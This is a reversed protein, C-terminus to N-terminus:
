TLPNTVNDGSPNCAPSRDAAIKMWTDRAAAAIFLSGAALVVTGNGGAQAADAQALATRLAQEVPSVSQALCGLGEALAALQDPAAARPHVSQTAIVRNVRPRLEALMGEVDKDESVGFVLIVSRGPLYEDLTQRLRRASDRNHASDVIVLPERSLVEFRGPWCVRAFGTQIAWDPISLGQERAVLLAAAATAGNEVQHPGLLPIRLDLAAQPDGANWVRFSQGELSHEGAEFRVDKGVEVLRSGRQSAIEEIVARAQAQQPALIVPRGPKIIGGKEFAIKELTSGLVATHDLSLSTIVSVLPDVVNTADLRGGLGVEVVAADVQTSSFHLFGLATTLEFTTLREVQPVVPKIRDVLAVLEAPPIQKGNVQIRETFEQLHPSTYLGTRYGAEQLARAVLASTSGKGKTGAVHIIPHGKHPNGLLELFAVMRGLDFKEPAYRFNRTLSYDVFSYLYDLAEQYAISNDNMNTQRM